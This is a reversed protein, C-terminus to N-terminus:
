PAELSAFEELVSEVSAPQLEPRNELFLALCAGDSRLRVQVRLHEFVWAMRVPQIEHERLNAITQVLHATVQRIQIPVLWHAFSQHIVMGDPLRAGCGVLGPIPLRAAFFDECTKKM